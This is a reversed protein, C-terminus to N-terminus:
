SFVCATRGGRSGKKSASCINLKRTEPNGGEFPPEGLPSEPLYDFAELAGSMGADISRMSAATHPRSGDLAVQMCIGGACCAVPAGPTHEAWTCSWHTGATHSVMGVAQDVQQIEGHTFVHVHM